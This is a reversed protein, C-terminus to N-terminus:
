HLVCHHIYKRSYSGKRIKGNADAGNELLLKVIEVHSTSSLEHLATPGTMEWLYCSNVDAGSEILIKVVKVLGKQCALHFFSNIYLPQSTISLNDQQFLWEFM